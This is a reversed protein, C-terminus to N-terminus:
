TVEFSLLRQSVENWYPSEKDSEQNTESDMKILNSYEQLLFISMITIIYIVKFIEGFMGQM